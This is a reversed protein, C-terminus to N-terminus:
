FGFPIPRRFRGAGDLFELFCCYELGPNYTEWPIYAAGVRPFDAIREVVLGWM